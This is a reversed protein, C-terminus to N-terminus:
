CKNPKNCVNFIYLNSHIYPRLINVATKNYINYLLAVNSSRGASNNFKTKRGRRINAAYCVRNRKFILIMTSTFRM